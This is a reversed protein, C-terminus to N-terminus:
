ASLEGLAAASRADELRYQRGAEAIKDGTALLRAGLAATAREVAGHSTAMATISAQARSSPSHVAEARLQPALDSCHDAVSQLADSVRLQGM